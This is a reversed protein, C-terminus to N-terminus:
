HNRRRHSRNADVAWMPPTHSPRPLPPRGDECPPEHDPLDMIPALLGTATKCMEQVAPVVHEAIVTALANMEQALTDVAERVLRQYASEIPPLLPNEYGFITRLLEFSTDTFQVEMPLSYSREAAQRWASMDFVVDHDPLDWLLAQQQFFGVDFRPLGGILIRHDIERLPRFEPRPLLPGLVASGPCGGEPEGHWDWSCGPHPCEPYDPDDYDYGNEPEGAALQEDIFADIDAIVQDEPNM